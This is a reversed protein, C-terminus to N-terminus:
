VGNEEGGLTIVQSCDKSMSLLLFQRMLTYGLSISLLPKVIWASEQASEIRYLAPTVQSAYGVSWGPTVLPVNLVWSTRGHSLGCASFEPTKLKGVANEFGGLTIM